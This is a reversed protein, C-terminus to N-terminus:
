RGDEGDLPLFVFEPQQQCPLMLINGYVPKAPREQRTSTERDVKSQGTKEEYFTSRRLNSLDRESLAKSIIPSQTYPRNKSDRLWKFRCLGAKESSHGSKHSLERHGNAASAGPLM